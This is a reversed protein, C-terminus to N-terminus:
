REAREFYILLSQSDLDSEKHTLMNPWYDVGIHGPGDSRSGNFGSWLDVRVGERILHPNEPEM